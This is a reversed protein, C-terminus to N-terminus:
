YDAPEAEDVLDVRPEHDIEWDIVLMMKVAADLIYWKPAATENVSKQHSKVFLQLWVASCITWKETVEFSYPVKIECFTVSSTKQYSKLYLLM